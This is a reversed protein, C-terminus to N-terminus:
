MLIEKLKSIILLRLWHLLSALVMLVLSYLAIFKVKRRLQFLKRLFILTERQRLFSNFQILWLKKSQKSFQQLVKQKQILWIPKLKNVFKKLSKQHFMRIQWVIQFNKFFQNLIMPQLFKIELITKSLQLLDVLFLKFKKKLKNIKKSRSGLKSILLILKKMMKLSDKIELITMEMVLSNKERKILWIRSMAVIKQVSMMQMLIKNHLQNKQVWCLNDRDRINKKTNQKMLLPSKNRTVM